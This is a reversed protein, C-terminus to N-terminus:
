TGKLENINIYAQRLIETPDRLMDKDQEYSKSARKTGKPYLEIHLMNLSHGEIDDRKKHDKLVQKVSGLVQGKKVFDGVEVKLHVSIEGYCVVGFWHEILVCQTDNWWPSNDKVGTFDEVSVVIGDNMARVQEYERTYLDVGTHPAFKRPALYAGPHNGVPLGNCFFIPEQNVFCKNVKVKIKEIDELAGIGFDGCALEKEIPNIVIVGWEKIKNIHENTIPHNWMWTNMAPCVIVPKYRHWARYLSSALDDCIGNAMKSLFDASAIILLADNEKAMEIHPIKDSKSYGAIPIKWEEEASFANFGDFYHLDQVNVFYQAKQTFVSTVQYEEKEFTCIIKKALTTAVTGTFIIALKRKNM